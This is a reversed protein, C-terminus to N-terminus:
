HNGSCGHKDGGCGHSGCHHEGEHHHNCQVDPNFDLEGLIYSNVAEDANGSVGPMLDIGVEGLAIRAGMGIGGCILANVGNNKLFLALAGHGSGNTDVIESAAIKGDEIEYIKFQETRGFHGFVNGNEYTVAIKM